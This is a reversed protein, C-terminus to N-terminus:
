KNYELIENLGYLVLDPDVCVEQRLTEQILTADGGTLYVVADPHAARLAQIYGDIEYVIGQLVGRSIAERTTQGFGLTLDELDSLLPLRSTFHNLAKTRTYLGPSINGGLHVGESTIREITIATGADVVLLERGRGVRSYAGVVGALRDSGLRARDYRIELPVPTSAAIEIVLPMRESLMGLLPQDVQAVSSYVAADIDPYVALIQHVDRLSLQPYTCHKHLEKGVAVAVKCVTNGQDIILNM